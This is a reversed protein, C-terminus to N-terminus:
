IPSIITDCLSPVPGRESKILKVTGFLKDDALSNIMETMGSYKSGLKFDVQAMDGCFIIESDDEIRSMM